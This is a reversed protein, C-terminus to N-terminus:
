PLTKIAVGVQQAAGRIYDAALAYENADSLHEIMLPTDPGLKEAEEVFVGYDLTGLGPRVEDIHITLQNHLLTDKAHCSKVWPGLKAFCERIVEANGYYRQPSTILNTPDLHVAFAPRDVAELLRVYSDVTDPYLWPMMELVYYTRKPRVGDIITRVSEVILDFHAPTLSLPHPARRGNEEGVSGAINVCCRAGIADALALRAQCLAIAKRRSEQYPSLANCWAGVEAIVLDANRAARGYAQVTSDSAHEDIPCYAASFGARKLAAIWAQPDDIPDFVHGGLRM